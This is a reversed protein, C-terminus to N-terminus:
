AGARALQARMARIEREQETIITRALAQLEPDEGRDLEARAMEIAGQHHPIMMELFARDFPDASRLMGADMDMGTMHAPVGLEGRGVGADALQADERRLTRIEEAQDRAITTALDRVFASEGRRVAVDAMEIAGEHHPVMDAAFARDAGTGAPADSGCAALVLAAAALVAPVATRLKM